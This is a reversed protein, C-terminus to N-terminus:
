IIFADAPTEKYVKSFLEAIMATNASNWNFLKVKKKRYQLLFLWLKHM